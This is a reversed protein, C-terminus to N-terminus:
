RGRIARALRATREVIPRLGALMKSVSAQTM